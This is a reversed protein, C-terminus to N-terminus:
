SRYTDEKINKQKVAVGNKREIKDDVTALVRKAKERLAQKDKAGFYRGINNIVTMKYDENVFVDSKLIPTIDINKITRNEEM